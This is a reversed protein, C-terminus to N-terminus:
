RALMAPSCMLNPPWTSATMLPPLSFFVYVPVKMPDVPRAFVADVGAGLLAAEAAPDDANAIGLVVLNKRSSQTQRHQALHLDKVVQTCENQRQLCKVSLYMNMQTNTRSPAQTCMGYSLARAHTTETATEVCLM